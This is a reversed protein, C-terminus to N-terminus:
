CPTDKKDSLRNCPFDAADLVCRSLRDPRGRWVQTFEPGAACRKLASVAAALTRYRGRARGTKPNVLTHISM